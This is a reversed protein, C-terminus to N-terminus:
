YPGGTRRARRWSDEGSLLLSVRDGRCNGAIIGMPAARTLPGRQILDRPENSREDRPRVPLGARQNASKARGRQDLEEGPVAGHLNGRQLGARAFLTGLKGGMLGSGLIGIRM